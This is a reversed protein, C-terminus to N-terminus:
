LREHVPALATGGEALGALYELEYAASLAGRTVKRMGLAHAVAGANAAFSIALPRVAQNATLRRFVRLLPHRRSLEAQVLELWRLNPYASDFQRDFRGYSRAVALWATRSRSSYHWGIAQPVFQFRVGNQYMRAALEIDEARLLAENFGGADRIADRELFANGTHFQRWTAKVVGQEMQRYQRQLTDAEWWTWAEPRWDRPAALPGITALSRTAAGQVKLHEDLWRPVARVDDDIFAVYRGQAREVGRNRAASPGRQRESTLLTLDISGAFEDTIPQVSTDSADDVVVVEFDHVTQTALARLNARLGEPRNRTPIVVSILPM